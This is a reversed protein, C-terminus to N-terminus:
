FVPRIRHEYAAETFCAPHMLEPETQHTSPLIQGSTGEAPPVTCAVNPVQQEEHELEGSFM